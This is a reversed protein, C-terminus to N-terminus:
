PRVAELTQHAPRHPKPGIASRRSEHRCSSASSALSFGRLWRQIQVDGGPSTLVAIDHASCPERADSQVAVCRYAHTIDAADTGECGRCFLRGEFDESFLSWLPLTGPTPCSSSRQSPILAM